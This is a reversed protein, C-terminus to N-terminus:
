SVMEVASRISKWFDFFHLYWVASNHEVNPVKKLLFTYICAIINQTKTNNLILYKCFKRTSRCSVESIPYVYHISIISSYKQWSHSLIIVHSLVIFSWCRKKKGSQTSFSSFARGFVLLFLTYVWTVSSLSYYLISIFLFFKIEGVKTKAM